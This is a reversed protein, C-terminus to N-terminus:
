KGLAAYLNKLAARTQETGADKDGFVEAQGRECEELLSQTTLLQGQQWHFIAVNFMSRFTDPHKGGLLHRRLTLCKTHADGSANKNELYWCATALGEFAQATEINNDEGVDKQASLYEEYTRKADTYHQGGLYEGALNKMTIRTSSHTSGLCEKQITLIEARLKVLDDFRKLNWYADCLQAMTWLTTDHKSGLTARQQSLCVSLASEAEQHKGQKVYISALEARSQLTSAHYEGFVETQLDACEKFAEEAEQYKEQNRLDLALNFMTIIVEPHKDGFIEKQVQLSEKRLATSEDFKNEYWLAGALGSMANLTRPHRKGLLDSYGLMGKRYYEVAQHYKGLTISVAGLGILCNLADEGHDGQLATFSQLLESFVTEAEGPRNTNTYVGALGFKAGMTSRASPGETSTFLEVCEKFCAEANGLSGSQVYTAALLYLVGVADARSSHPVMEKLLICEEFIKQAEHFLGMNSYLFGLAKKCDIIELRNEIANERELKVINETMDRISCSRFCEFVKSNLKEFGITKEIVEFIRIRDLPNWAESKHVDVTSLMKYFAGYDTRIITRFRKSESKSMAVEFVSETNSACYVEWLCWVRTLPIPNEWPEMIMVVRGLTKIANMFTDCWWEFPPPADLGHQNNSFLDFWLVFTEGNSDVANAPFHEQLADLVNLFKYKWAHSIFVTARKVQSNKSSLKMDCYSSLNEKTMEKVFKECVETTTLGELAQKGGCTDIFDFIGEITIGLLPFPRSASEPHVKSSKNGLLGAIM